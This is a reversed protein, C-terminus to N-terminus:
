KTEKAALVNANPTTAVPLTSPITPLVPNPNAVPPNANSTEEKMINRKSIDEEKIYEL